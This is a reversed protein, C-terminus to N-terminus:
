NSASAEEIRAIFEHVIDELQEESDRKYQLNSFKKELEKLQPTSTRYLLRQMYEDALWLQNESLNKLGQLLYQFIEIENGAYVLDVLGMDAYEHDSTTLLSIKLREKQETTLLYKFPPLESQAYYSMFDSEPTLEYTGEWRTAPHEACKVLWEITELFKQDTDAIALIKQMELIRDKYVEIDSLTLTKAGYSLAHTSYKGDDKDLFAIVDAEKYYRDPAPCIFNGNFPVEITTEKITGKLVERVSIVAIASPGFSNKKQRVQKVDLVHGVIIYESEMILKRLPRPDIPYAWSQHSYGIMLLLFFAKAPRM